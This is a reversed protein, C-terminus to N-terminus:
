RETSADFGPSCIPCNNILAVPQTEPHAARWVDGMMQMDLAGKERIAVSLCQHLKKVSLKVLWGGEIVAVDIDLLEHTSVIASAAMHGAAGGKGHCELHKVLSHLMLDVWEALHPWAQSICTSAPSALFCGLELGQSRLQVCRM